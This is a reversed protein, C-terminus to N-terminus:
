INHFIAVGNKVNANKKERGSPINIVQLPSM